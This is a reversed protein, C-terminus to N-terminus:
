SHSLHNVSHLPFGQKVRTFTHRELKKEATLATFWMFVSQKRWRMEQSLNQKMTWFIMCNQWPKLANNVAFSVTRPFFNSMKPFLPVLKKSSFCNVKNGQRTLKSGHWGATNRQTSLASSTNDKISIQSLWQYGKLMSTWTQNPAQHFGFLTELVSPLHFHERHGELSMIELSVCLLHLLSSHLSWQLFVLSLM